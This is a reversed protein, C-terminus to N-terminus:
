KVPKYEITNAVQRLATMPVEGVVTLWFEGLKKSVINMAGQQRSGETRPASAAEIFVSIAALGDSFVIQAVERRGGNQLDAVQRKLERTKRFGPPLWKVQWQPLPTENAQANEIRWGSTDAFGSKVRNREIDGIKLQTFSVQEVLENRENITQVRLLLGTNKEVWLRYGYRLNDKPELILTHCDFGAVRDVEAKKIQYNAVLELNPGFIAPFVDQTAKKEILITKSEPVYCAIEDNNRVYERAKGDLMELKQMENRGEVVHTIRSTRVQSGEQYVFTGSYNLKQAASQIKKLWEQAQAADLTTETAFALSACCFLCICLVRQLVAATALM